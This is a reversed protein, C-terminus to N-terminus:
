PAIRSLIIIREISYGIDGQKDKVVETRMRSEVLNFVVTTILSCHVHSPYTTARPRLIVQVMENGMPVVM